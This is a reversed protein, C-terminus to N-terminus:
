NIGSKLYGSYLLVFENPIPNPAGIEQLFILVFIAIYGYKTIYLILEPPM